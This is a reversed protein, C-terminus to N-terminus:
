VDDGEETFWAKVTSWTSASAAPKQETAEEVEELDLQRRLREVSKFAREAKLEASEARDLAAHLAAELEVVTKRPARESKAEDLKRAALEVTANAHAAEEAAQAAKDAAETVPAASM